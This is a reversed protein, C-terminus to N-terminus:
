EETQFCRLEPYEKMIWVKEFDFGEYTQQKRMDDINNILPYADQPHRSGQVLDCWIIGSSQVNINTVDTAEINMGGLLEMVIM